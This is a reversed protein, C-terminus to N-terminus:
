GSARRHDDADGTAVLSALVYARQREHADRTWAPRDADAGEDHQHQRSSAGESDRAPETSMGACMGMPRTHSQAVTMRSVM